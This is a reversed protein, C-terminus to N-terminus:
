YIDESYLFDSEEDIQGALFAFHAADDRTLFENDSSLFGQTHTVSKDIGLYHANTMINHHRWGCLVIGKGCNSPQHERQIGDHFYVAAMLIRMPQDSHDHQKRRSAMESDVNDCGLEVQTFGADKLEQLQFTTGPIKLEEVNEKIINGKTARAFLTSNSVDSLNEPTVDVAGKKLNVLFGIVRTEEEVRPM